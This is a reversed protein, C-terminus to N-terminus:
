SSRLKKLTEIVAASTASADSARASLAKSLDLLWSELEAATFPQGGGLANETVTKATEAVQKMRDIDGSAIADFIPAGYITIIPGPTNAM